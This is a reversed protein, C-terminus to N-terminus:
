KPSNKRLQSLYIRRVALFYKQYEESKFDPYTWDLTRIQEKGFLFELHAYIGKQLPVRHSFDKTTAMILASATMYGPDLNVIRHSAQLEKRIEEELRNTEQKITSLREPKILKEFSLFKRKLNKGMQKEYYDTFDFSFLPSELDLVGYRQVLKEEARKNFHENSAIIGCIMKVPIFSQPNALKKVKEQPFGEM